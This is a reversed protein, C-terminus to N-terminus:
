LLKNNNNVISIYSHVYRNISTDYVKQINAVTFLLM